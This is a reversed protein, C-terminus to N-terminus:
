NKTVHMPIYGWCLDFHLIYLLIGWSGIIMPGFRFLSLCQFLLSVKDTIYQIWYTSFLKYLMLTRLWSYRAGCILLKWILKIQYNFLPPYLVCIRMYVGFRWGHIVRWFAVRSYCTLINGTFLVGSILGHIARRLGILSNCAVFRDKFLVEWALFSM